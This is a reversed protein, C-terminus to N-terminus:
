QLGRQRLQDLTSDIKELTRQIVGIDRELRHFRADQLDRYDQPPMSQVRERIVQIDKQVVALTSKNEVISTAAWLSFSTLLVGFITAIWKAVPSDIITIHEDHGENHNESMEPARDQTSNEVMNVLSVM